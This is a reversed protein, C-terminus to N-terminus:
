EIEKYFGTGNLKLTAVKGTFTPFQENVDKIFENFTIENAAPNFHLNLKKGRRYELVLDKKNEICSKCEKFQNDVIKFAQIREFELGEGHTGWAFTIYVKSKNISIVHVEYYSCDSYGGDKADNETSLKQVGIDGNRKVFQVLSHIIHSTGGYGIDWSYFGVKEDDSCRITIYKSLSDLKNKITIPNHLSASLKGIFIMELSDCRVGEDASMMNKYTATLNKDIKHIGTNQSQGTIWFLLGFVISISRLTM